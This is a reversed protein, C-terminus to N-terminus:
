KNVKDFLDGYRGNGNESEFSGEKPVGTVVPNFSFTSKQGMNAKGLLILMDTNVQEKTKSYDVKSRYLLFDAYTGMKSAYTEIVDDIEKEHLKREVEQKEAEFVDLKAQVEDLTAKASNYDAELQEYKETMEKVTASEFNELAETVANATTVSTVSDIEAKISFDNEAKDMVGVSKEVKGDFDLTVEPEEGETVSYPISYAKYEDEKDIVNAETDSISLIAYKAVDADNCKFTIASLLEFVKETMDKSEEMKPKNELAFTKLEQMLLSFEQKFAENDNISFDKLREVRCSAFCPTTNDKPNDSKGLLCLADLTFSKIVLYSDKDYDADDILLECSQNFYVDDSYKADMINYRGTWLLCDCSLYHNYTKGDPELVKEIKPNANEPIVGFPVTENIIQFGNEDDIVVKSDHGGVVYHDDRKFLHGVIPTNPLQEICKEMAEYTIDSGNANRGSAMVYVRCRTFRKDLVEFNGHKATFDVTKLEGM